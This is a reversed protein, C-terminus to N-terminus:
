PLMDTHLVLDDNQSPAHNQNATIATIPQITISYFLRRARAAQTSTDTSWQFSEVM